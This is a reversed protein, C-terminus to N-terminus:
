SKPAPIDYTEFRIKGDKGEFVELATNILDERQALKILAYSLLRKQRELDMGYFSSLYVLGAHVEQKAYLGGPDRSGQGRFDRANHTVLTFDGTVVVAL